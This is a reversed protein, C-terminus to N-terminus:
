RDTVFVTALHELRSNTCKEGVSVKDRQTWEKKVKRDNCSHQQSVRQMGKLRKSYLTMTRFLM